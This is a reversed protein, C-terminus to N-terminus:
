RYFPSIFIDIMVMPCHHILTVYNMHHRRIIFVPYIFTTLRLQTFRGSSMELPFDIRKRSGTRGERSLDLLPNLVEPFTAM